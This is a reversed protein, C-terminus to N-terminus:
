HYPRSIKQVYMAFNRGCRTLRLIYRPARSHNVGSVTRPLRKLAGTRGWLRRVYTLSQGLGFHRLRPTPQDGFLPPINRNRLYNRPRSCVSGVLVVFAVKALAM